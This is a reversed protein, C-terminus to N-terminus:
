GPSAYTVGFSLWTLPAYHGLLTTTFMWHLHPPDLGRFADNALLSRDDDWNLFAGGLVPSFVLVTVAAVAFALGRSPMSAMSRVLMRRRRSM